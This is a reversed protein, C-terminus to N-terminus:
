TLINSPIRLYPIIYKIKIINHTIKDFDDNVNVFDYEINYTM